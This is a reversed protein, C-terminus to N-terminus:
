PIRTSCIGFFYPNLSKYDKIAEDGELLRTSCIGFFYPNLGELLTKMVKIKKVRLAYELFILILVKGPYVKSLFNLVRLAYELFILILVMQRCLCPEFFRVEYLM